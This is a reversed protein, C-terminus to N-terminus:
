RDYQDENIFNYYDDRGCNICMGGEDPDWEHDCEDEDNILQINVAMWTDGNDDINFIVEDNSDLYQLNVMGSKNFNYEVGKDDIIMGVDNLRDYWLITGNNM